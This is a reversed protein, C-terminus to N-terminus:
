EDKLPEFNKSATKPNVKSKLASSSPTYTVAPSIKNDHPQNQKNFQSMKFDISALHEVIKDLKWYWLLLGRFIFFLAIVVLLGILGGGLEAM